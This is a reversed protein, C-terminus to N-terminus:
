HCHTCCTGQPCALEQCDATLSKHIYDSIDVTACIKTPMSGTLANRQLELVELSPLNGLETPVTGTLQNGYLWLRRLKQLYGMQSPINGTLTGNTMSLSALESLQGIETPITGTITNADLWVAFLNDLNGSKMWELNFTMSNRRMYLYILERMNGVANPMSGSLFNSEVELHTLKSFTKFLENDLPGGILNYSLRLKELDTCAALSSPLGTTTSLYNDDMLITHLKPLQGFVSFEEMFILNTTLDLTELHDGLLVLEDPIKGTLSNDELSIGNVRMRTSCQIGHWQCEHVDTLWSQTNKWPLAVPTYLTTVDFTSYYFCALAFRQLVQSREMADSTHSYLWKMAKGQVTQENTLGSTDVSHRSLAAQVESRLAKNAPDEKKTLTVSLTIILILVLAAISGWLIWKRRRRRRTYNDDNAQSMIEEPSMM